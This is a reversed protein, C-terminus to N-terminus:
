AAYLSHGPGILVADLHADQDLHEKNFRSSETRLSPSASADFARAGSPVCTPRSRPRHALSRRGAGRGQPRNGSVRQYIARRRIEAMLGASKRRSTPGSFRRFFRRQCRALALGTAEEYQKLRGPDIQDIRDLYEELRRTEYAAERLM